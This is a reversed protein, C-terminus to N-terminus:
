CPECKVFCLTFKLKKNMLKVIFTQFYVSFVKIIFNKHLEFMKIKLDLTFKLLSYLKVIFLNIYFLFRDYNCKLKELFSNKFMVKKRKM